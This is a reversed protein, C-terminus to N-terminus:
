MQSIGEESEYKIHYIGNEIEEISEIDKERKGGSKKGGFYMELIEEDVSPGECTVEILDPIIDLRPNSSDLDSEDDEDSDNVSDPVPPDAISVEAM